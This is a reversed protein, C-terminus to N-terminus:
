KSERSVGIESTLNNKRSLAQYGQLLHLFYIFINISFHENIGTIFKYNVVNNPM